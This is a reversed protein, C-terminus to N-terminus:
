KPPEKIKEPWWKGGLEKTPVARDGEIAIGGQDICVPIPDCIRYCWWYWGPESPPEKTWDTM